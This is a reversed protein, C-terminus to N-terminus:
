KAPVCADLELEFLLDDRCVDAHVSVVPLHDLEQAACWADFHAKFLPHEFYATARTVDEFSMGRSYLMATIVQMTLEVQKAANGVWATAGGPHISATGSILLRRWGGSEIEMARSFASGYQPAPCQLPSGLEKARANCGTPQMAWAAVTLATGGPNRAGIGTSAPLSGTRWKVGAYHAFRVRNFENYWELIEDNYFWTRIVDGLSFGANDLAWELNGLTQQVQATRNTTCATPGLGGLLCYRAGGDEYVSGVITRGLRIRSVARGNVAFAQVGALPLGDCSAGDIWTVPWERPGLAARMAAEIEDQASTSGYIMVSLLVAKGAALQGALRQFTDTLTEGRRMRETIVFETRPAPLTLVNGM